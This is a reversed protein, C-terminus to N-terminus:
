TRVAGFFMRPRVVEAPRPMSEVARLINFVCWLLRGIPVRQDSRVVAFVDIQLTLLAASHM